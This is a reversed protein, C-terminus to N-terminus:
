FFPAPQALRCIDMAAGSGNKQNIAANCVSCFKPRFAETCVPEQCQSNNSKCYKDCNEKCVEAPSRVVVGFVKDDKVCEPEHVMGNNCAYGCYFKGNCTLMPVDNRLAVQSDFVRKCSQACSYAEAAPMSLCKDTCLKYQVVLGSIYCTKSSEDCTRQNPFQDPIWGKTGKELLCTDFRTKCVNNAQNECPGKNQQCIKRCYDGLPPIGCRQQCGRESEECTQLQLRMCFLRDNMCVADHRGVTYCYERDDIVPDGSNESVTTNIWRPKNNPSLQNCSAAAFTAEDISPACNLVLPLIALWVGLHTM